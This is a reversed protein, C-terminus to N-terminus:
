VPICRTSSAFHGLAPVDPNNVPGYAEELSTSSCLSTTLTEVTSSSLMAARTSSAEHGDDWRVRYHEHEATGLVELIEGNRCPEGLRHRRDRDSRRRRARQTDAM